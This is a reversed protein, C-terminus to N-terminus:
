NYQFWCDKTCVNPFDPISDCNCGKLMCKKDNEKWSCTNKSLMQPPSNLPVRYLDNSITSVYNKSDVSLKKSCPGCRIPSSKENYLVTLPKTTYTSAFNERKNFFLILITLFFLTFTLFLPRSM